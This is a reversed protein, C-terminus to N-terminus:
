KIEYNWTIPRNSPNFNEHWTSPAKDFETYVKLKSCSYISGQGLNELTNYIYLEKLGTCGAFAYYEITKTSRPIVLSTLTTCMNFANSGIYELTEPFIFNELSSCYGFASTEIRTLNQSLTLSVLNECNNFANTEIVNVTNSIVVKTLEKNTAFAYPGVSTIPKNDYTSPIQVEIENGIYNAITVESDKILYQYNGEVKLDENKINTHIYSNNEDCWNDSFNKNNGELYITKVGNLAYYGISKVTSPVYVSKLNPCQYFAASEITTYGSPIYVVKLTSDKLFASDAIGLVPKSNYKTPLTVVEDDGIYGTIYYSYGISDSQYLFRTDDKEVITVKFYFTFAFQEDSPNENYIAEITNDGIRLNDLNTVIMEKTVNTKLTTENKKNVQITILTPDFEGENFTLTSEEAVINISSVLAPNIGSPGSHGCSSIFITLLLISLINLIKKM